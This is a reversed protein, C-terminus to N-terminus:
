FSVGATAGIMLWQEAPQPCDGCRYKAPSIDEWGIRLGVAVPALPPRVELVGGADFTPETYGVVGIGAHAYVGFNVLAGFTALGGVALGGAPAETNLRGLVEPQLHLPGVSARYGVYVGGEIGPTRSATPSDLPVGAGAVAGAQFGAFAQASVLVLVM